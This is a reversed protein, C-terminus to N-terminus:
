KIGMEVCDIYLRTPQEDQSYARLQMRVKKDTSRIYPNANM